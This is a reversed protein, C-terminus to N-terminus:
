SEGGVAPSGHQMNQAQLHPARSALVAVGATMVALACVEGAVAGLGGTLSGNLWLLGIGISVLPDTTIIIALAPSGLRGAQFTNQNLLVGLPGLVIIGYLQWHYFLEPFGDGFRNSLSRVLGATVGYCIGTAVALPLPRWPKSIVRAASLCLLLPIGLGFTLPLIQILGLDHGGQDTPRAVLLFASVGFLTLLAGVIRVRDPRRHALVPTILVYFLLNTVLLPQVVMVPGFRLAVVQLGFGVVSLVMAIWWPGLRALDLFMRPDGPRRQRVQHSTRYQLNAAMGFCLASIVAAPIALLFVTAAM